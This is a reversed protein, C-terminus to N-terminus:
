RKVGIETGETYRIAEGDAPTVLFPQREGRDWAERLGPAALDFDPRLARMVDRLDAAGLLTIRDQGLLNGGSQLEIEIADDLLHLELQVGRAHHEQHVGRGDVGGLAVHVAQRQAM